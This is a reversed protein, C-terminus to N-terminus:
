ERDGKWGDGLLSRRKPKRVMLALRGICYLIVLLGIAIRMKTELDFFIGTAVAIGFLLIISISMYSIVRGVDMM